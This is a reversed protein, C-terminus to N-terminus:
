KQLDPPLFSADYFKSLDIDKDLMGVYKMARVTTELLPKEIRGDNYFKADVLEKVMTDVQDPPLPAYIKQLIKSADATHEYLYKVAERRGALIARLKEPHKKMLDGTAFEAAPPLLPLDKPGMIVRYKSEGGRMLFLIGPISTAEVTGNELAVLAGSLNGLAVRQIDNPSIGVKEAAIVATMEGLSKPNSIAFKKGKLEAVTKIPSNPMVIIVNDALSRSGIAVLKIDQGENIAALGAAPSTEGYGLDSAILARVSTGGGEGNIVGTIDIGAQKFFGKEIGVGYPGGSPDAKYQTVLIDEAAAPLPVAALALMLAGFLGGFLGKSRAGAFNSHQLM